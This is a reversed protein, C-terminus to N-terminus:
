PLRSLVELINATQPAYGSKGASLQLVPSAPPLSCSKFERSGEGRHKAAYPSKQYRAPEPMSALMPVRGLCFYGGYLINTSVGCRIMSLCAWAVSRTDPRVRLSDEDGSPNIWHKAAFDVPRPPEFGFREGLWAPKQAARGLGTPM